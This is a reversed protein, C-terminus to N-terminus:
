SSKCVEIEMRHLQKSLSPATLIDSSKNSGHCLMKYTRSLDIVCMPNAGFATSMKCTYVIVKDGGISVTSPNATALVLVKFCDDNREYILFNVIQLFSFFILNKKNM